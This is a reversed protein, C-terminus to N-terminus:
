ISRVSGNSLDEASVSLIELGPDASVKLYGYGHQEGPGIGYASLDWEIVLVTGSASGTCVGGGQKEFFEVSKNFTITARQKYSFHDGTHNATLRISYRGGSFQMDPTYEIDATITLCDNSGSAMYIGESFGDAPLVTPKVYNNM